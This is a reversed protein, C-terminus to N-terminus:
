SGGVQWFVSKEAAEIAQKFLEEDNEEFIIFDEPSFVSLTISQVDAEEEGAYVDTIKEVAERYTRASIFFSETSEKDFASIYFKVKGTFVM